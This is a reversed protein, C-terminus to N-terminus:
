ELGVVYIGQEGADAGRQALRFRGEDDDVGQRSAQRAAALVVGLIGLAQHRCGIPQPSYHSAADQEDVVGAVFLGMHAAVRHVVVVGVGHDVHHSILVDRLQGWAVPEPQDAFLLFVGVREM